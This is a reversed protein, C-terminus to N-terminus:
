GQWAKAMDKKIQEAPDATEIQEGSKRTDGNISQEGGNIRAKLEAIEDHALSLDRRMRDFNGARWRASASLAVFEDPTLKDSNFFLRDVYELGKQRISNGEPDDPREGFLEQHQELLDNSAIDSAKKFNERQQVQKAREQAEIEGSKSSYEKLAENRKRSLERLRDWQAMAEPADAGFMKKLQERARGRVEAATAGKLSTLPLFDEEFSAPRTVDKGDADQGTVVKLSEIIEVADNQADTFPKQYKTVFDPNKRYNLTGIESQLRAIEKDKEALTTTLAATDGGGNKKLEGLQRELDNARQTAAKEANRIQAIVSNEGEGKKAAAVVKKDGPKDATEGAKKEGPKDATETKADKAPAPAPKDAKPKPAFVDRMPDAIKGSDGGKEADQSTQQSGSADTQPAAAPPAQTQTANPSPAPPAETETPM